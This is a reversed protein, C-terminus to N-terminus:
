QGDDVKQTYHVLLLSPTIITKVCSYLTKRGKTKQENTCVYYALALEKAPTMRLVNQAVKIQYSAEFSM